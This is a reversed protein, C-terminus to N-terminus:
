HSQELRRGVEQRGSQFEKVQADKAAERGAFKGNLEEITAKSSKLEKGQEDYAESLRALVPSYFRADEPFGAGYAAMDKDFQKQVDDISKEAMGILGKLKASEAEKVGTKNREERAVQDNNEARKKEENYKSQFMFTMVGLVVTLMVFIILAIQLGQSERAM